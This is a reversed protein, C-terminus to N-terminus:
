KESVVLRRIYIGKRVWFRVRDENPESNTLVCLIHVTVLYVPLWWRLHVTISLVSLSAM